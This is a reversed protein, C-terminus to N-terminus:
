ATLTTIVDVAVQTVPLGTVLLAMVVTTLGFKGTLTFITELSASLIMHAPVLTVNVAVGVFPPM